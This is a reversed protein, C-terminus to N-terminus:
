FSQRALSKVAYNVVATDGSAPKAGSGEKTIIYYLGSPTQSVKLKNDTIYKQIKIPEQKKAADTLSQVYANCRGQFVEQSLNGKSIVKEVKIVFVM